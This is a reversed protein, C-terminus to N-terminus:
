GVVGMEQLVLRLARLAYHTRSKVTGAPIGLREAADSVSRGLFYCEVLVKRHDASLRALAEAVLWTQLADDTEDRGGHDPVEGTTVELRTRSSRWDDIVLNRAVTFLWAQRADRDAELVRSSRWARLLTEQVVDEARGRDGGTLRMAYRWLAPGCEGHLDRMLDARSAAM